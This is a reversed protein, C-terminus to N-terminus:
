KEAPVEEKAPFAAALGDTYVKQLDWCIESSIGPDLRVAADLVFMTLGVCGHHSPHLFDPQLLARSSGGPWHHDRVQLPKNAVTAAMFDSLPLVAVAKRNKAWELLRANCKDIVELTPMQSKSLMKDVAAEANPLNGVVMPVEFKELLLLGKEFMELRQADTLGDGYCFWFLFDVAIVLSPQHTLAKEVCTTGNKEPNMFFYAGGFAEASDHEGLIAADVYHKLRYGATKPGGLMESQTFGGSVSAGILVPRRFFLSLEQGVVDGASVVLWGFALIACAFRNMGILNGLGLRLTLNM